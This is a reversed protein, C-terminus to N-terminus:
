LQDLEGAQISNPQNEFTNVIYCCHNIIQCIQLLLSRKWSPTGFDSQYVTHRYISFCLGTNIGIILVPRDCCGRMRRHIQAKLLFFISFVKFLWCHCLLYMSCVANTVHCLWFVARVLSSILSDLESFVFTGGDTSMPVSIRETKEPRVLIIGRNSKTNDLHSIEGKMREGVKQRYYSGTLNRQLCTHM